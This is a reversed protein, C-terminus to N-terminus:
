YIFPLMRWRVKKTYEIYGPLQDKLLKEEANIRKRLLLPYVFFLAFGIWSGLVLPISLFLLVTSFYMPHRVIGYLGTDIVKQDAQVEVTRSLYANERMVEAYMGYSLLLLVSAAMSIAASMNSWGLRYDLGCLVFGSLFMLASFGVVKKQEGQTEKSRLRKELLEPAKILLAAGLFLMPIFLLGIFLWGNPYNLTGAPVFLLLMVMILGALYKGLAQSILKKKM